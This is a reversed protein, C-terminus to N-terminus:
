DTERVQKQLQDSITCTGMTYSVAEFAKLTNAKALDAAKHARVSLHSKRLNARNDM